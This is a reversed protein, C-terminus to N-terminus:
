CLTIYSKKRVTKNANRHEKWLNLIYTVEEKKLRRFTRMQTMMLCQKRGRWFLFFFNQGVFLFVVVKGFAPPRFKQTQCFFFFNTTDGLTNPLCNEFLLSLNANKFKHKYEDVFSDVAPSRFKRNEPRPRRHEEIWNDDDAGSVSCEVLIFFLLLHTKKM